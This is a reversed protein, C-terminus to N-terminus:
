CRRTRLNPFAASECYVKRGFSGHSRLPYCTCSILQEGRHKLESERPLKRIDDSHSVDPHFPDEAPCSPGQPPNALGRANAIGQGDCTVEPNRVLRETRDTLTAVQSLRNEPRRHQKRSGLRLRSGITMEGPPSPLSM